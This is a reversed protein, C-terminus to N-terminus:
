TANKQRAVQLPITLNPKECIIDLRQTDVDVIKDGSCPMLLVTLTGPPLDNPISLRALIYQSILGYTVEKTLDAANFTKKARTLAEKKDAVRAQVEAQDIKQALLLSSLYIRPAEVGVTANYAILEYCLQKAHEVILVDLNTRTKWFSKAGDFIVSVTDTCM